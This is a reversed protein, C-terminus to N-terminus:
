KRRVDAAPMTSVMSERRERRIMQRVIASKSVGDREAVQKLYSEDEDSLLLHTPLM